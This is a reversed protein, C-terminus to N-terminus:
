DSKKLSKTHVKVITMMTKSSMTTKNNKNGRQLLFNSLVGVVIVRSDKSRGQLNCLANQFLEISPTNWTTMRTVLEEKLDKLLGLVLYV